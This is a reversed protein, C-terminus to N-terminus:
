VLGQLLCQKILSTTNTCNSKKLINKRHNKVTNESIHLLNAIAYSTKGGALLKIIEIERKTFESSRDLPLAVPMNMYSVDDDLSILSFTNNNEKSLHSIDTHINIAKAFGGNEDLTLQISQHNLLGYEGNKMKSRFSYSIKYSLLKKNGIKNYFFDIIAKEANSVFGLDDPHVTEIIDSFTVKEADLDHVKSIGSSINSLSMDFFDVVYYYFPGLSFISSTYNSFDIEPFTTSQKTVKQSDFWTPKLKQLNTPMNFISYSFYNIGTTILFFKALNEWSKDFLESNCRDLNRLKLEYTFASYCRVM